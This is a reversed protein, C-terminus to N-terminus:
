ALTTIQVVVGQVIGPLRAIANERSLGVADIFHDLCIITRESAFALQDKKSICKRM